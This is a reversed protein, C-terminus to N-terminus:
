FDMSFLLNFFIRLRFLQGTTRDFAQLDRANVLNCQRM